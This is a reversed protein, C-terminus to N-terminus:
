VNRILAKETVNLDSVVLPIGSRFVIRADEPDVYIM